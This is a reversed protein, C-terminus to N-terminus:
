DIVYIDAQPSSYVRRLGNEVLESTGSTIETDYTYWWQVSGRTKPLEPSLLELKSGQEARPPLGSQTATPIFFRGLYSGDPQLVQDRQWKSLNVPKGQYVLKVDNLNKPTPLLTFGSFLLSGRKPFFLHTSLPGGAWYQVAPNTQEPEDLATVSNPLLSTIAKLSEDCLQWNYRGDKHLVIVRIDAAKLTSLFIQRDPLQPNTELLQAECSFRELNLEEIFSLSEPTSSLYHAFGDVLSKQYYFSLLHNSPEYLPLDLVGKGPLERVVQTYEGLPAATSIFSRTPVRELILGLFVAALLWTHKHLHQKQLAWIVLCTAMLQILVVFRAPEPITSFPFHPKLWSYPLTIGFDPSHKGIAFLALILVFLLAIRAQPTKRYTYVAWGFLLWEIVGFGVVFEIHQRAAPQYNLQTQVAPIYRNPVILDILAPSYDSEQHLNIFDGKITANLFPWLFPLLLIGAGVACAAATMWQRLVHPILEWVWERNIALVAVGLIAVGIVTMAFYQVSSLGIVVGALAARVLWKQEFTKAYQIFTLALLAFGGTLMLNTHGTLRALVFFSYGWMTAAMLSLVRNPTLTRALAYTALFNFLCGALIVLNYSLIPLGTLLILIGGLLNPFVGDYGRGFEFGVPYRWQTTSAFPWKWDSLNQAVLQQFGAHQFSDAGNGILHTGFTAISPFTFVVFVGVAFLLPLIVDFLWFTRSYSRV